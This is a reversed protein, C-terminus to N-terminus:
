YDAILDQVNSLAEQFETVDMGEQTYWHVYAKAKMMKEFNVSLTRFSESISTSNTLFTGSVDVENFSSPV